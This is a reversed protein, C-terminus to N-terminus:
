DAYESNPDDVILFRGWHADFQRCFGIRRRVGAEDAYLVRGYFFISGEGVRYVADYESSAVEERSFHVFPIARGSELSLGSDAHNRGDYDPVPPLKGTRTVFLTAHAEVITATSNGMNEASWQVKALKGPEFAELAIHRVVLRPRNRQSIETRVLRVYKMGVFMQLFLVVVQLILLLGVITIIITVAYGTHELQDTLATILNHLPMDDAPAANAPLATAFLLPAALLFKKL